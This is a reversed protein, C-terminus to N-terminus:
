GPLMTIPGSRHAADQDGDAGVVVAEVPQDAPDVAPRGRVGLGLDQDLVAGGVRRAGAGGDHHQAVVLQDGLHRRGVHHDGLTTRGRDHIGPRHALSGDHDRPQGAEVLHDIVVLHREGVPHGGLLEHPQGAVLVLEV